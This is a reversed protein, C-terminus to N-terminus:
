IKDLKVKWKHLNFNKCKKDVRAIDNNIRSCSVWTLINLGGKMGVCNECTECVNTNILIMQKRM